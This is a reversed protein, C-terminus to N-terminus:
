LDYKEIRYQAMQYVAADARAGIVIVLMMDETRVLKYVIRLGANKLKIKFCGALDTDNRSGLPKGYGGENAPLPNQWVKEIAKTVLVKQSGDLKKLDDRAEPLLDIAWTM